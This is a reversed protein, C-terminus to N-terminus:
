PVDCELIHHPLGQSVARYALLVCCGDHGGSGAFHVGGSKWRQLCLPRRYWQLGKSHTNLEKPFFWCSFNSRLLLCSQTRMLDCVQTLWRFGSAQVAVTHSAGVKQGQVVHIVMGVSPVVPTLPQCPTIRRTSDHRPTLANLVTRSSIVLNRIIAPIHAISGLLDNRRFFFPCM